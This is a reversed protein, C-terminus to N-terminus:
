LLMLEGFMNALESAEKDLTWLETEGGSETGKPFEKVTELLELM